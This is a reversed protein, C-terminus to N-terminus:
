RVNFCPIPEPVTCATPVPKPLAGSASGPSPAAVAAPTGPANAKSELEAVRRKLEEVEDLLWRERETLGAAPADIKKATDEAPPNSTNKGDTKDDALALGPIAIIGLLVAVLLFSRPCGNINAYKISM